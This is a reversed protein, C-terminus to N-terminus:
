RNPVVIIRSAPSLIHDGVDSDLVAANAAPIETRRERLSCGLTSIARVQTV